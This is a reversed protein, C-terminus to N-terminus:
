APPRTAEPVRNRVGFRFLGGSLRHFWMVSPNQPFSHKKRMILRRRVAGKFAVIARPVSNIHVPHSSCCWIPRHQPYQVPQGNLDGKACFGILSARAWHAWVNGVCGRVCDHLIAVHLRGGDESTVKAYFGSPEGAIGRHRGSALTMM